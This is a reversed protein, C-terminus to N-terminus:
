LWRHGVGKYVQIAAIEISVAVHVDLGFFDGDARQPHFHLDVAVVLGLFLVLPNARSRPIECGM